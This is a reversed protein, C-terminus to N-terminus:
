PVVPLVPMRGIVAETSTQLKLRSHLGSLWSTLQTDYSSTPLSWTTGVIAFNADVLIGMTGTGIGPIATDVGNVPVIRSDNTHTSSSSDLVEVEYYTTGALAPNANPHASPYAKGHALDVSVVIMAHDKDDSGIQWWLLIDGPLVQDLRTIQQAFGKGAKLLAIYQYPAPSASTKTVKLVPDYFSYSSWSWAYCYKLLHTVLPACRTNNGPLVGAAQNLFRIYSADTASNWSGGYRNLPVNAADTFVGAAQAGAIEDALQLGKTVHAPQAFATAAVSVLVILAALLLTSVVRSWTPRSAHISSASHVPALPTKINSSIRPAFSGRQM